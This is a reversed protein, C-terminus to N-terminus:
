SKNSRSRGFVSLGFLGLGFLAISIPESVESRNGTVVLDSRLFKFDGQTARLSVGLLGDTLLTDFRFDFIDLLGVNEPSTWGTGDFNFSVREQRDGFIPIDGLLDDDALVISLFAGSITDLGPRFGNMGDRIDHMFNYQSNVTVDAPDFEDTWTFPLAQASGAFALSATLAAVTKKLRSFM